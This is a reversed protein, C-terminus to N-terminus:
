GHIIGELIDGCNVLLEPQDLLDYKGTKDDFTGFYYFDCSKINEKAKADALVLSRSVSEAVVEKSRDDYIPQAYAQIAKNRYAFVGLIM